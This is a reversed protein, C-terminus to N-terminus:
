FESSRFEKIPRESRLSINYRQVEEDVDVGLTKAASKCFGHLTDRYDNNPSVHTSTLLTHKMPIDKDDEDKPNNM